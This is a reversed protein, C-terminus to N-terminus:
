FRTPTKSFNITILAVVSDVDYNTPHVCSVASPIPSSKIEGQAAAVLRYLGRDPSCNDAGIM